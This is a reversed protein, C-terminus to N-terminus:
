AVCPWLQKQTYSTNKPSIWGKRWFFLIGFAKSKQFNIKTQPPPFDSCRAVVPSVNQFMTWENKCNLQNGLVIRKKPRLPVNQVQRQPIRRFGWGKRGCASAQLLPKPPSNCVLLRPFVGSTTSDSFSSNHSVLLLASQKMSDWTPCGWHFLLYSNQPESFQFFFVDFGLWTRPEIADGWRRNRALWARFIGSLFGFIGFFAAHRDLFDEREPVSPGMFFPQHLWFPINIGVNIM